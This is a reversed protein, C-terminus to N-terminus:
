HAKMKYWRAAKFRALNDVARIAKEDIPEAEIVKAKIAQKFIKEGRETMLLLTTWGEDSGVNGCSIDANRSNMDQCYACSSSSFDELEGVKWEAEGGSHEVMMKGGAIAFRRVDRIDIENSSLFKALELYDYSKTCFLGFRIAEAGRIKKIPGSPLTEMHYVADINCSTGVVALKKSGEKLAQVVGQVIPAHTYISGSSEDVEKATRAIKSIPMWPKEPDSQVVVAADIRGSELMHSLIATVAGGDQAGKSRNVARAKWASRVNGLLTDRYFYTRPCNAYCIGCATCKGTLIPVYKGSSYDGTLADVPCNEVCAACQVCVGSTVIERELKKFAWRRTNAKLWDQIESLSDELANTM